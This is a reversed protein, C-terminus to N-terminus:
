KANILKLYRLLAEIFYYDAYILTGDLESKSMFNGTAHKLIYNSNTGPSALYKHSSLSKLMKEGASFYRKRNKSYSSLEMLASAMIAAASADRLTPIEPASFDWYPVMDKPMNPHNLIFEAIKEAHTLYHPDKTARYMMVFGYLGWGQGRSWSAIKPDSFGNNWDMKRFTGTEPDYDVVHSCSFDQRYQCTITRNAHAIAMEKYKNDGIMQSAVVLLELNMMNDIIVPFKWDRKLNSEWSKITQTKNSFRTSLSKAAQIIVKRYDTNGTLRWGNGYSCNIRFGVDHNSTNYQEKELFATVKEANGKWFDDKTYEYLYWLIGPYFGSTWDGTLCMGKEISRPLKGSDMVEPLISRAQIQAVKISNLAWKPQKKFANAGHSTHGVSALLIFFCFSKLYTRKMITFNM